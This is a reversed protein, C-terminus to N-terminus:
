IINSVVTLEIEGNTKSDIAINVLRDAEKNKDRAIHEINFSKFKNILGLAEKYLPILTNSKIKYKGTIQKCLLESDSFVEIIEKKNFIALKLGQILAKYEAENNTSNGIYYYHGKKIKDDVTIIGIGSDGPNGRAGGDIFLSVKNDIKNIFNKLDEGSMNLEKALKNIIDDHKVLTKLIIQENILV